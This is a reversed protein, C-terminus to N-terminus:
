ARWPSTYKGCPRPSFGRAPSAERGRFQLSCAQRTYLAPDDLTVGLSDFLLRSASESGLLCNLGAFWSRINEAQTRLKVVQSEFYAIEEELATRAGFFTDAAERLGEEVLADGWEDLLGM